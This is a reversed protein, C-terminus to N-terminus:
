TPWQWRYQPTGRPECAKDECSQDTDPRRGKPCWEEAVEPSGDGAGAIRDEAFVNGEVQEDQGPVVRHNGDDEGHEDHRNRKPRQNSERKIRTRSPGPM